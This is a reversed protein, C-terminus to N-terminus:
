IVYVYEFELDSVEEKESELYFGSYTYTKGLLGDFHMCTKAFFMGSCWWAWHVCHYCLRFGLVHRLLVHQFCQM